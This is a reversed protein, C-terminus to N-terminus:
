WGIWPSTCREASWKLGDVLEVMRPDDLEADGVLREVADAIRALRDRGASWEAYEEDDPDAPWLLEPVLFNGDAREGLEGDRELWSALHELDRDGTERLRPALSRRFWYTGWISDPAGAEEGFHVAKSM